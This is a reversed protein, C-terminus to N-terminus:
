KIPKVQYGYCWHDNDLSLIVTDDVESWEVSDVEDGEKDVCNVEICTVKAETSPDKGWSGKWNVTDGVKLLKSM